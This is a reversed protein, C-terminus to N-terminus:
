EEAPMLVTDISHIVGNSAEIDTKMVRAENVRTGADGADLRLSDGQLNQAEGTRMDRAMLKGPLAHGKLIGALRTRDKLLGDLTARPWKRFAADTPAFLTFPGAGKFTEVLGAARMANCLVAFHGAALAADIIDLRPAYDHDPSHNAM